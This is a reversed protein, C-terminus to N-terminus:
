NITPNAYTANTTFLAAGNWRTWAAIGFEREMMQARLPYHEHDAAISLAGLGELTGTRTRVRLPKMPTSTDVALMYGSPVWPKIWVEAADFVGIARNYLATMDLSGNARTTTDAPIIRADIYPTFNSTMARIAAEQARNIYLRIGSGVGHEVVTEILASVNAAVLSATGLYHTHTTGDFVEGNPGYPIGTSDANLLARIPLVALDTLRDVYTLNNTPKFFARAIDRQIRRIDADKAAEFQGALEAPTHTLMYTRTWQIAYQVKRLPWGVNSGPVVKQTDAAGFEDVEIMEGAGTTGFRGLREATVDCLSTLMDRVLANHAALGQAIAAFAKDEGYDAISQGTAALLDSVSLTGYSTM